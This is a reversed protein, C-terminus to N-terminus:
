NDRLMQIYQVTPCLHEKSHSLKISDNRILRLVLYILELRTLTAGFVSELAKVQEPTLVGRWGGSAGKRIFRQDPRMDKFHTARERDEKM